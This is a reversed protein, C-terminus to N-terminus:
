RPIGVSHGLVPKQNEGLQLERSLRRAEDVQLRAVRGIACTGLGASACHLYINQSVYGGDFWGFNPSAARGFDVVLLLYVPADFSGAIRRLDESTRKQLAHRQPNYYFGGEATLLFLEVEQRNMASPVTRKGNERNVGVASWLLSSIQKQSLATKQYKRISQRKNLAEQLPMGGERQPEPLAITDAWISGAALVTLSLLSLKRLWEM